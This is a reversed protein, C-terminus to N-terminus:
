VRLKSGLMPPKRVPNQVPFCDAVAVTNVHHVSKGDGNAMNSKNLANDIDSQAKQKEALTTRASNVAKLKDADSFNQALATQATLLAALADAVEKDAAQKQAETAPPAGPYPPNTTTAKSNSNAWPCCLFM